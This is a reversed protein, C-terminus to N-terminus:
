CDSGTLLLNVGFLCCVFDFGSVPVGSSAMESIAEEPLLINTKLIAQVSECSLIFFYAPLGHLVVSRRMFNSIRCFDRTHALNQSLVNRWAEDVMDSIRGILPKVENGVSLGRQGKEKGVENGEGGIGFIAGGIFRHMHEVEADAGGAGNDQVPAAMHVFEHSIREKSRKFIRDPGDAGTNFHLLLKLNEVKIPM